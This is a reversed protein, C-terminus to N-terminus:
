RTLSTLHDNLAEEAAEQAWTRGIHGGVPGDVIEWQVIEEVTATPDTARYSIAREVVWMWVDGDRWSAYEQQEERLLSMMEPITARRPRNGYLVRAAEEATIYWLLSPGDHPTDLLTCGGHFRVVYMEMARVADRSRWGRRNFHEWAHALPGDTKDVKLWNLTDITLAHCARESDVRPSETYQDAHIVVRFTGHDTTRTKFVDGEDM